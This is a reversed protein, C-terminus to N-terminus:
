ESEVPKKDISTAQGNEDFSVVDFRESDPVYYEFVTARRNVEAAEFAIKLM